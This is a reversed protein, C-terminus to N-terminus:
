AAVDQRQVSPHLSAEHSVANVTFRLQAHADHSSTEDRHQRRLAHAIRLRAERRLGPLLQAWHVVFGQGCVECRVDNAINSRECMVQM